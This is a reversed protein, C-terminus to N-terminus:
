QLYREALKAYDLKEAAISTAREKYIDIITNDELISEMILRLEDETQGYMVASGYMDIYSETPAVVEACKCCLATQSTASQSGPQFYVDTANLLGILEEGSKWGLFHVNANEDILPWLSSKLEESIDGAIFLHVQDNQIQCFARVLELTKKERTIRGTHSFIISDSSLKFEDILKKRQIACSEDNQLIGGLPYFELKEKPLRYMKDLFEKCEKTIYFIKRVYPLIRRVFYGNIYRYFLKAAIIRGTNCFDAHSDAYLIINNNKAYKSVTIMEYGILGHYMIVDPSIEELYNKLKSAKRIKETIINLILRDYDIRILRLGNDLIEDMEGVYKINCGSYVYPDSIYTVDHGDKLNMETLLNDQYNMGVTYHSALGIHIIKMKREM